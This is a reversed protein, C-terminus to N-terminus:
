LQDISYVTNPELWPTNLPQLSNSTVLRSEMESESKMSYEEGRELVYKFKLRISDKCRVELRSINRPYLFLNFTVM